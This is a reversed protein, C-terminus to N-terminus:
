AARLNESTRESGTLPAPHHRQWRHCLHWSLLAAPLFTWYLVARPNAWPGRFWLVAGLLGGWLSLVLFPLRTEPHERLDLALALYMPALFPIFWRISCSLGGFNNSLVTYLLWSAACWSLGALLEPRLRSRGRLVVPVAPLLMLLPLNFVLFGKKGLLLALGYVILDRPGHRSFGTLNEATFPSGPFVSYEAVMNIPKWVGGIAHNIGLGLAVWPVASLVFAGVPGPRRLRYAVLLFLAAAFLPGSGFDLNFGLGALTGLAALRKWSVRGAEGDRVLLVLQWCTVSLVALMMLHNNVHRTYTLCLTSVAFSTLWLIHVREPLGLLRGLRHLAFLSVLYALGSTLVTLMWCFLDPREAASPLGVLRAAKYLGAMLITIVAPKDSYYHGNIYLKDRTGNTLNNSDDPAYPPCGRTITDAPPHCFISDDIAFTHRDALSEVAALRSGDNWGGAYPRASVLVAVLAFLGLLWLYLSSTGRVPSPLMLAEKGNLLAFRRGV